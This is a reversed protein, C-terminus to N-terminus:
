RPILINLMEPTAGIFNIQVKGTDRDKRDLEGHLKLALETAKLQVREDDSLRALDSVRRACDTRSMGEVDLFRSIESKKEAIRSVIGSEQLIASTDIAMEPVLDIATPKMLPM